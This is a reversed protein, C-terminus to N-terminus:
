LWKPLHEFQTRLACADKTLVYGIIEQSSPDIQHVIIGEDNDQITKWDSEMIPKKCIVIPYTPTKVTAPLAPYVVPTKEGTLTKALAEAVIRIPGIYRLTLGAIDACDGIAYIDQHRTAAFQDTKIGRQSIDDKELLNTSPGLGTAFITLTDDDFKANADFKYDVGIKIFHDRLAKGVVPPTLNALPYPTDSFLTVAKGYHNLDHTLECGVLGSGVINIKQHHPLLEWLAEYDYLSNIHLANKCQNPISNPTSGTALVLQDFQFTGESTELCKEQIQIKTVECNNYITANLSEEMEDKTKTVLEKPQKGKILISSLMPKHYFDGQDKTFIILPKLPEVKRWATALLYGASGTGIIILPQNTNVINYAGWSIKM